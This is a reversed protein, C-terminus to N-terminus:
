RGVLCKLVLTAVPVLGVCAANLRGNKTPVPGAVASTTAFPMAEAGTERVTFYRNCSRPSKALGCGERWSFPPAVPQPVTGFIFYVPRTAEVGVKGRGETVAWADRAGAGMGGTYRVWAFGSGATGAFLERRGAGVHVLGAPVAGRVM